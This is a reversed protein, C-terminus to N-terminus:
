SAALVFTQDTGSCSQGAAKLLHSTGAAFVCNCLNKHLLHQM